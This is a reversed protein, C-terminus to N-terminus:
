TTGTLRALPATPVGMGTPVSAVSMTGEGSWVVAQARHGQHDAGGAPRGGAGAGVHQGLCLAVSMGGTGLESIPGPPRTSTSCWRRIPRSGEPGQLAVTVSGPATRVSPWPSCPAPAHSPDARPRGRSPSRARDPQVGVGRGAARWRVTMARRQDSQLGLTVPTSRGPRVATAGSPLTYGLAPAGGDTYSPPPSAVGWRRDPAAGLTFTVTGGHRVAAAPLWPGRLPQTGGTGLAVTAAHVYTAPAGPADLHLARGSGLDITARRFLPSAVALDATGPTLPYLGLAAWVYWSSLAGLDDNGPEGVPALSYETTAIRRVVQQTRWPAGTADFEWPAWLDPENGSWDEPLYPGANLGTFFRALIATAARDGGMLAVLDDLNQPVSWTYQVANGEQFGEQTVGAQQLAASYVQLAPGPPFSGDAQRAEVYGTAPNFLQQWNQARAIMAGALARRGQAAAVQAVAFDDLPYELTASGGITVGNTTSFEDNRVYGDALYEALGEREEIGGGESGPDDAGRVMAALAARADFGRVGFAVADAIVPDASDGDMAGANTGALEWTPLWGSQQADAVLSQVMDATRGPFLM